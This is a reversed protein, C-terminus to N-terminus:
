GTTDRYQRDDVSGSRDWCRADGSSPWEGHVTGTRREVREYDGTGTGRGAVKEDIGSDM